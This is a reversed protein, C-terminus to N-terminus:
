NSYLDKCAKNIAKTYTLESCLGTKGNSLLLSDSFVVAHLFNFDGEM